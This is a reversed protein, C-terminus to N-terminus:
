TAATMMGFFLLLGVSLSRVLAVVPFIVFCLVVYISLSIILGMLYPLKLRLRDSASASRRAEISSDFQRRFEDIGIIRYTTIVRLNHCAAFIRAILWSLGLFLLISSYMADFVAILVVAPIEFCLIWAKWGWRSVVYKLIKNWEFDHGLDGTFVHTTLLDM